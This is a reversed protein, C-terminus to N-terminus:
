FLNPIVHQRKGYLGNRAKYDSCGPPIPIARTGNPRAYVKLSREQCGLEAGGRHLAWEQLHQKWGNNCEMNYKKPREETSSFVLSPQLSPETSRLMSQKELPGPNLEWCGCPLECSDTVGLDSSVYCAPLVGICM